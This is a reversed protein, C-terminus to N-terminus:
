ISNETTDREMITCHGSPEGTESHVMWIGIELESFSYKGSCIIKLQKKKKLFDSAM